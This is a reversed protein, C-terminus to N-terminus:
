NDLQSACFYLLKIVFHRETQLLKVGPILVKFPDMVSVTDKAAALLEEKSTAMNIHECWVKGDTSGGAKPKLAMHVKNLGPRSQAIFLFGHSSIAAKVSKIAEQVNGYNPFSAIMEESLPLALKQDARILGKVHLLHTDAEVKSQACDGLNNYKVLLNTLEHLIGVTHSLHEADKWTKLLAHDKPLSTLSVKAHLTKGVDNVSKGDPFLRAGERAVAKFADVVDVSGDDESFAIIVGDQSPMSEALAALSGCSPGAPECAQNFALCGGRIADKIEISAIKVTFDVTRKLAESLGADGWLAIAKRTASVAWKCSATNAEDSLDGFNLTNLSTLLGQTALGELLSMAEARISVKWKQHHAFLLGTFEKVDKSAEFALMAKEVAPWVKRESAHLSWINDCLKKHISNTAQLQQVFPSAKQKLQEDLALIVAGKHLPLTAHLLFIVMTKQVLDQM